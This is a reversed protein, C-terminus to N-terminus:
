PTQNSHWEFRGCVLVAVNFIWFPWLGFRDYTQTHGHDYAFM